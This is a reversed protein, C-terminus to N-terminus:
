EDDTEKLAYTKYDGDEGTIVVQGYKKMANVYWVVEDSKLGTAVAAQPITKEGTVLVKKLASICQTNHRHRQLLESSPKGHREKFGKIAASGKM